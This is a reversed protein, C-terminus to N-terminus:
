SHLLESFSLILYSFIILIVIRGVSVTFRRNRFGQEGYRVDISSEREGEM